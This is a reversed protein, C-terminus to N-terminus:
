HCPCVYCSISLRTDLIKARSHCFSIFEWDFPIPCDQGDHYMDKVGELVEENALGLNDFVILGYGYQAKKEDDSGFIVTPRLNIAVPKKVGDEPQQCEAIIKTLMLSLEEMSSITSLDIRCISIAYKPLRRKLEADILSLIEKKKDEEDVLVILRNLMKNKFLRLQNFVLSVEEAIEQPTFNLDEM